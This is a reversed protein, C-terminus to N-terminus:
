EYIYTVKRNSPSVPDNYSILYGERDFEMITVSYSDDRIQTVSKLSGDEYSETEYQYTVSWVDGSDYITEDKAVLGDENLERTKTDTHIEEAPTKIWDSLLVLDEELTVATETSENDSYAYIMIYSDPDDGYQYNFKQTDNLRYEILRGQDDADKFNSMFPYECSGVPDLSAPVAQLTGDEGYACEVVVNLHGWAPTAEMRVLRESGNPVPVPMGCYSDNLEPFYANLTEQAAGDSVQDEPDVEALVSVDGYEYDTEFRVYIASLNTSPLLVYKNEETLNGRNDKEDPFVTMGSSSPFVGQLGNSTSGELWGYEDKEWLYETDYTAGDYTYHYVALLGNDGYEFVHKEEGSTGMGEFGTLRGDEDYQYTYSVIPEPNDDVMGEASILRNQEDYHMKTIVNVNIRPNDIPTNDATGETHLLSVPNGASDYEWQYEKVRLADTDLNIDETHMRTCRGDENFELISVLPNEFSFIQYASAMVPNSTTERFLTGNPHYEHTIEEVLTGDRDAVREVRTLVGNEFTATETTEWTTSSLFPKVPDGKRTVTLISGEDDRVVTTDESSEAYEASSLFSQTLSDQYSVKEDTLNGYDDYIYETIRNGSHSVPGFDDLRTYSIGKETKRIPLYVSKSVYVPASEPVADETAEPTFEEAAEPEAGPAGEAGAANGYGACSVTLILMLFLAIWRKM